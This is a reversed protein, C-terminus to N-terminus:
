KIHCTTCLQSTTNAMRLFTPVGAVGHVDHCSSCWMDNGGGYSLADTMGGVAEVTAKLELETDTATATTYDFGIPHDNSLDTGLNTTAGMVGAVNPQGGGLSNPPNTLASTYTAGDHCSLCLVADSANAGALDATADMTGAPNGYAATANVSGRNWLPAFGLATAGHPTHCFVCTEDTDSTVPGPGTSSMDHKSGAILALAPTAFLLATALLVVLKKM